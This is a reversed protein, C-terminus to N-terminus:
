IMDAFHETRKIEQGSASEQWLIKGKGRGLEEAEICVLSGNPILIDEGTLWLVIISTCSQHSSIMVDGDSTEIRELFDKLEGLRKGTGLDEQVVIEGSFKMLNAAIDLTNRVRVMPSSYIQTVGGLQDLKQRVIKVVEARGGSTLDREEDTPADGTIGHRLIFLKM